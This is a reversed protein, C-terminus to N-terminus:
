SLLGGEFLLSARKEGKRGGFKEGLVLGLTRALSERSRQQKTEFLIGGWPQHHSRPPDQGGLLDEQPGAHPTPVRCVRHSSHSHKRRTKWGGGTRGWVEPPPPPQPPDRSPSPNGSIPRHRPKKTRQLWRFVPCHTGMSPLNSHPRLRLHPPGVSTSLSFLSLWGEEFVPRPGGCETRQFM